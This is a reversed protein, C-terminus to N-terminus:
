PRNGSGRLAPTTCGSITSAPSSVTGSIRGPRAASVMVVREASWWMPM